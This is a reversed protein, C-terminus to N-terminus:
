IKHSIKFSTYLDTLKLIDKKHRLNELFVLSFKSLHKFVNCPTTIKHNSWKKSELASIQGIKRQKKSFDIVSLLCESILQGKCM